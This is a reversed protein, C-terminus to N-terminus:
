EGVYRVGSVGGSRGKDLCDKVHQEHAAKGGPIDKLNKGCVPCDNMSQNSDTRRLNPAVIMSGGAESPNYDRAFSSNLSSTRNPQSFSPVSSTGPMGLDAYCKDCVRQPQSLTPPPGMAPNISPDQLIQFPPLIARSTSCRDCVVLGCRRCHHRRVLFTFKRGCRRCDHADVDSEWKPMQSGVMSSQGLMMSTTSRRPGGRLQVGTGSASPTSPTPPITEFASSTVSETEDRNNRLLHLRGVSEPADEDEDGSGGVLEVNRSSRGTTTSTVTPALSQTRSLRSPSFHSRGATNPPPTGGQLSWPNSTLEGESHYVIDSSNNNFFGLDQELEEVRPQSSTRTPTSLSKDSNSVGLSATLREIHKMHTTILSYAQQQRDGNRDKYRFPVIGAVLSLHFKVVIVITYQGKVSALLIQIAEEYRNIEEKAEISSFEVNVKRRDGDALVFGDDEAEEATNAIDKPKVNTLVAEAREVYDMGSADRDQGIGEEEEMNEQQTNETGSRNVLDMRRKMVRVWRRRRVWGFGSSPAAHTWTDDPEDFTRAYSWGYHADVNPDTYDVQWDTLWFWGPQSSSRSSPVHPLQVENKTSPKGSPHLSWPGRDNKSLAQASFQPRSLTLLPFSSTSRQNEHLIVIVTVHFSLLDYPQSETLAAIDFPEDSPSGKKKGTWWSKEARELVECIHAEGAAAAADYAAEGFKNKILPNANAEYLLYDVIELYGKSAANIHVNVKAGAGVLFKVIDNHGRSCANHLATWGDKDKQHINAKYNVVLFRVVSMHGSYSAKLLATQPFSCIEAFDPSIYKQEGERDSLDIVAGGEEILCRVIDLHGRSAAYHLPTLGTSPQPENTRHSTLLERLLFLNGTASANYIDTELGQPIKRQQQQEAASSSLTLASPPGKRASKAAPTLHVPPLRVQQNHVDGYYRHTEGPVPPYVFEPITSPNLHQTSAM